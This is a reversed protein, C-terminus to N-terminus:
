SCVWTHQSQVPRPFPMDEARHHPIRRGIDDILFGGMHTPITSAAFTAYRRRSSSPTRPLLCTTWCGRPADDFSVALSEQLRQSPSQVPHRGLSRLQESLLMGQYDQTSRPALTPPGVTTGSRRCAVEIAYIERNLTRAMLYLRVAQRCYEDDGEALARAAEASNTPHDATLERWM